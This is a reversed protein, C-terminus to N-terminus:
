KATARCTGGAVGANQHCARTKSAARPPVRCRSPSCGPCVGPREATPPARANANYPATQAAAPARNCFVLERLM